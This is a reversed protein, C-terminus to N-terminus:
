SFDCASRPQGCDIAGSRNRRLSRHFMRATWASQSWRRGSSGAASRDLAVEMVDRPSELLAIELHGHENVVTPKGLFLAVGSPCVPRSVERASGQCDSRLDLRCLHMMSPEACTNRASLGPDGGYFQCALELSELSSTA